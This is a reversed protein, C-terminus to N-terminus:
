NHIALGVRRTKRKQGNRFIFGRPRHIGWASPSDPRGLLLALEVGAFGFKAALVEGNAPNTRIDIEFGLELVVPNSSTPVYLGWMAPWRQGVLLNGWIPPVIGNNYGQGAAMGCLVKLLFREVLRGDIATLDPLDESAKDVHNFYEFLLKGAADLYSLNNNHTQCLIKSVLRDKGYIQM